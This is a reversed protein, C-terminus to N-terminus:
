IKNRLTRSFREAIVSIEENHKSNMEMDNSKLFSKMSRTFNVVKISGCKIQNANQNM